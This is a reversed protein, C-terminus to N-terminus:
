TKDGEVAEQQLQVILSRKVMKGNYYIYEDKENYDDLNIQRLMENYQAKADEPSEFDDFIGNKRNEIKKNITTSKATNDVIMEYMPKYVASDIVFTVISPLLVFALVATVIIVAIRSTSLILATASVLFVILLGFTAIINHKLEGFSMLFSNKYINKMSIDFTVTMPPIYFFTFMLFVLIIITLALPVYFIGNTQGWASYLIISYYSFVLVFYLVLGHVLFRLFNSKIGAVFDSFLAINKEGRVIHAVVQAVGAYFPFVPIVTLFLIYNANLGSFTNILYFIAFFLAFPVAMFLNVLILRHFNHFLSSVVRTLAVSSKEAAM